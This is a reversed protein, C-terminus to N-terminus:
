NDNNDNNGDFIQMNVRMSDFETRVVNLINRTIMSYEENRASKLIQLQQQVKELQNTINIKSANATQLERYLKSGKDEM